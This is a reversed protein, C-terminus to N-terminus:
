QEINKVSISDWLVGIEWGTHYPNISEPVYTISTIFYDKSSMFSDSNIDGCMLTNSPGVKINEIIDHTKEMRIRHLYRYDHIYRCDEGYPCFGKLLNRCLQTKYLYHNRNRERKDEDLSIKESHIYNCKDGYRCSGFKKWNRCIVRKYSIPKILEEKTHAFNCMRYPCTKGELVYQCMNTNKKSLSYM